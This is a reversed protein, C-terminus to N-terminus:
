YRGASTTSVIDRSGLLCYHANSPCTSILRLVYGKCSVQRDRPPPLVHDHVACVGFGGNHGLAGRIHGGSTHLGSPVSIASEVRGACSNGQGVHPGCEPVTGPLPCAM